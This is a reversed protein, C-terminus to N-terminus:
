NFLGKAVADTKSTDPAYKKRCADHMAICNNKEMCSRNKRDMASGEEEKIYADPCHKDACQRLIEQCSQMRGGAPVACAAVYGLLCIMGLSVQKLWM